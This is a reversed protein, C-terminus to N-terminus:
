HSKPELQVPMVPQCLAQVNQQKKEYKAQLMLLTKACSERNAYGGWIEFDAVGVYIILIWAIMVYKYVFFGAGPLTM